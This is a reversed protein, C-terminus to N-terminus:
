RVRTLTAILHGNYLTGGNGASDITTYKFSADTTLGTTSAIDIPDSGYVSSGGSGYGVMSVHGQNAITGPFIESVTTFRAQSGAPESSQFVMKGTVHVNYEIWGSPKSITINHVVTSAILGVGADANNYLYQKVVDQSRYRAGAINANVITGGSVTVQALKLSNAPATSGAVAELAVADTSGSYDSDYIRLYIGGTTTIPVNVTAGNRVYYLGQSTAETGPVFAEGPAVNVSLNPTGNQTVNFGGSDLIGPAATGRVVRRFEDAELSNAALSGVVDLAM